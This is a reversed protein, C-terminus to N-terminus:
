SRKREIMLCNLVSVQHELSFRGMNYGYSIDSTLTVNRTDFTGIRREGPEDSGEVAETTRKQVFYIQTKFM